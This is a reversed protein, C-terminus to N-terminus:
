MESIQFKIGDVLWSEQNETIPQYDAEKLRTTYDFNNFHLHVLDASKVSSDGGGGGSCLKSSFNM